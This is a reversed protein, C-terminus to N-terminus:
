EAEAARYALPEECLRDPSISRVLGILLTLALAPAALARALIPVVGSLTRQARNLITSQPNFPAIRRPARASDVRM